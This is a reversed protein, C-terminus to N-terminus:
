PKILVRKFAWTYIIIYTYAHAVLYIRATRIAIMAAGYICRLNIHISIFRLSAIQTGFFTVLQHGSIGVKKPRYTVAFCCWLKGVDMRLIFRLSFLIIPFFSSELSQFSKGLSCNHCNSSNWFPRTNHWSRGYLKDDFM